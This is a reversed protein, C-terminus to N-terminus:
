AYLVDAKALHMVSTASSSSAWSLVHCCNIIHISWSQIDAGGTIGEFTSLLVTASMQM